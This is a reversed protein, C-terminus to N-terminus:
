SSNSSCSIPRPPPSKEQADGYFKGRAPDATDGSYLLGAYSCSAASFSKSRRMASERGRGSGAGSKDEALTAIKGRYDAAFAAAEAGARALDAAFAPDDPAAYLDGLNWEPLAGLDDTAAERRAEAAARSIEPRRRSPIPMMFLGSRLLLPACLRVINM